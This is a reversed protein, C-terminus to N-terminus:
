DIIQIVENFEIQAMKDDRKKVRHFTLGEQFTLEWDDPYLELASRLDGVTFKEDM